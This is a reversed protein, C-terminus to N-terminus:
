GIMAAELPSDNTRDSSREMTKIANMCIFRTASEEELNAVMAVPEIPDATKM